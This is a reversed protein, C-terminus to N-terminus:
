TNYGDPGNDKEWRGYMRHKSSGPVRNSMAMKPSAIEVMLKM